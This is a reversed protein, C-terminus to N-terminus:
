PWDGERLIRVRLGEEVRPVGAVVIIEGGELGSLVALGGGVVDGVVVEQRLTTGFGEAEPEVLFVYHGQRDHAIASPPVIVHESGSSAFQFTVQVAMGPRIREWWADVQVVVPFTTGGGTPAVGVERVTGQYIEDPFADFRISVSQGAAIGAILVEPIAVEVEPPGGTQLIAATQGATVNESLEVPVVSIAGGSPARLQTYELRQEARRLRQEAADVNARTSEAKARAADRERKSVNELEYLARVREYDAEANRAQARAETLSARAEEGEIRYDTPDLEAVLAGPQVVDGPKV